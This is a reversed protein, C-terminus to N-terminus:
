LDNPTLYEDAGCATCAAHEGSLLDSLPVLTWEGTFASCEDTTHYLSQADMWLCPIGILDASPAQCTQCTLYKGAVESLAYPSSGTMGKCVQVKHYYKGNGSRYVTAEAAPKLPTQAAALIASNVRGDKGPPTTMVVRACGAIKAPIADMLVTSPYAATGGPVYLGVREIPLIKQGLVIGGDKELRFGERVQASHFARINEAAAHLVELFEPEVSALAAEIEAPSVRLDDLAVCDFRETYDRLAADGRERVTAIIDAVIDTVSATTENRAFIQEPSVDGVKLIRIM